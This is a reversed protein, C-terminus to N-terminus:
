PTSLSFLGSDMVIFSYLSSGGLVSPLFLVLWTMIRGDSLIIVCFGLGYAVDRIKFTELADVRNFASRKGHRGLENRENAGCTLLVGETTIISSQHLSMSCHKVSIHELRDNLVPQNEIDQLCPIGLQGDQNNGFVYTSM